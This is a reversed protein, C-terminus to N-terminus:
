PRVRREQPFSSLADVRTKYMSRDPAIQSGCYLKVYEL